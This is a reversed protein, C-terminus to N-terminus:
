LSTPTDDPARNVSHAAKQAPILSTLGIVAITGLLALGVATLRRAPAAIISAGAAIIVLTCAPAIVPLAARHAAQWARESRLIAPTRIGVFGNAPLLGSAGAWTMAIVLVSLAIALVCVSM